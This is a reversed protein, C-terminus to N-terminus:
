GQKLHLLITNSEPDIVDYGYSVYTAELPGFKIKGGRVDQALSTKVLPSTLPVFSYYRDSIKGRRGPYLGARQWYTQGKIIVDTKQASAGLLAYMPMIMEPDLGRHFFGGFPIIPHEELKPAEWFPCNYIWAGEETYIEKSFFSM